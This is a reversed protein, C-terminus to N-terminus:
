DRALDGPILPHDVSVDMGRHRALRVIGVGWVCLHPEIELRTREDSALAAHGRLIEAIAALFGTKSMEDIALMAMPYGVHHRAKRQCYEICEVHRQPGGVGLVATLVSRGMHRCYPHCSLEKPTNEKLTLEALERASEMDDGALANLIERFNNLDRFSADKKALVSFHKTVEIEVKAAQSMTSRFDGVSRFLLYGNIATLRLATALSPSHWAWRETSQARASEQEAAMLQASEYQERWRKVLSRQDPEARKRSSM